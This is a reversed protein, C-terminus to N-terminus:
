KYNYDFKHIELHKDSKDYKMAYIEYKGAITPLTNYENTTKNYISYYADFDSKLQSPILIKLESKIEKSLIWNNSNEISNVLDNM